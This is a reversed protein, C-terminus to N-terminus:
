PSRALTPLPGAVRRYLQIYATVMADLSYTAACHERARAAMLAAASPDAAVRQLADALASVNDSPVLHGAKGHLLVEPIGGVATGVCPRGAAMAEILSNPHAELRSCLVFVSLGALFAPVDHDLGALQVRAGLDLERALQELRARESGEGAIRLEADVGREVLAKVARLLLAHNKIPNLNGVTGVVFRPSEAKPRVYDELVIGNSILGVRQRPLGVEEILRERAAESVTFVEDTFRALLRFAMRRRWPMPAPETTGHFSFILPARIGSRWRARVTDPWAGWNRAHVVDPRFERLLQRLRGPLAWENPKGRLSHLRIEPAFRDAIILEGTM